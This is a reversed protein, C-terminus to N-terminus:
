SPERIWGPGRWERGAGGARLRTLVDVLSEGDNRQLMAYTTHEDCATAADIFRAIRGITIEGDSDILAQLNPWRHQNAPFRTPQM